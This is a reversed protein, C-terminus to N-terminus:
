FKVNYTAKNKLCLANSFLDGVILNHKKEKQKAYGSGNM